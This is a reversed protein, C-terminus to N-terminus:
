HNLWCPCLEGSIHLKIVYVHPISSVVRHFLHLNHFSSFHRTLLIANTRHRNFYIHGICSLSTKQKIIIRSNQKLMISFQEIVTKCRGSVLPLWMTISVDDNQFLEAKLINKREFNRPSLSHKPFNLAGNGHVIARKM